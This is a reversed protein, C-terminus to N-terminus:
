MYQNCQVFPKELKLAKTLWESGRFVKDQYELMQYQTGSFVSKRLSRHPCFILALFKLIDESIAVSTMFGM